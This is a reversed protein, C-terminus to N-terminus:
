SRRPTAFEIKKTAEPLTELEDNIDKVMEGVPKRTKNIGRTDKEPDLADMDEQSLAIGAAQKASIAQLRVPDAVAEVPVKNNERWSEMLADAEESSIIAMDPDKAYELALEDPMAIICFEEDDGRGIDGSLSIGASNIMVSSRGVRDVEVPNYKAPYVMQPEGKTYDGRKIRVKLLRM